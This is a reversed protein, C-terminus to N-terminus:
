KAWGPLLGRDTLAKLHKCRKRGLIYQQCDCTIRGDTHVTINRLNDDGAKRLAWVLKTRGPNCREVEYFDEHPKGKTDVWNIRLFLSAV